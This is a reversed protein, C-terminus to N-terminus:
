EDSAIEKELAWKRKMCKDCLGENFLYDEESIELGCNNCNIAPKMVPQVEPEDLLFEKQQKLNGSHCNDCLGEKFFYEDETMEAKCDNCNAM